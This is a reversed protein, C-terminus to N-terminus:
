SAPAIPFPWWAAPTARATVVGAEATLTLLDGGAWGLAALVGQDAVRGSTDIRGTRYIVDQPVSPM